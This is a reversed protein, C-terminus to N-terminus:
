VMMFLSFYLGITATMFIIENIASKFESNDLLVKEISVKIGLGMMTTVIACFLTQLTFIGKILNGVTGFKAIMALVLGIEGVFSIARMIIKSKLIHEVKYLFRPIYLSLALLCMTVMSILYIVLGVIMLTKNMRLIQKRLLFLKVIAYLICVMILIDIM